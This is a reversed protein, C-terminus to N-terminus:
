DYTSLWQPLPPSPIEGSLRVCLSLVGLKHPNVDMM